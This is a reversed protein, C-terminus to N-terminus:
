GDILIEPITQRVPEIVPNIPDQWVVEQKQRGWRPLMDSISTHCEFKFLYWYQRIALIDGILLTITLPM